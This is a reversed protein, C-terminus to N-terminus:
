LPTDPGILAPTQERNQRRAEDQVLPDLYDFLEKASKKGKGLGKLFYYTFMGHGQDDLTGTIQDGSAAALITIRGDPAAGQDVKTVLPRAGKAIVSRGGAGSFCADLAVIVHKAKTKSLDAYLKDLPYATSKLFQPDGDWPVLYAQGTKPDPAGHGSYYVFLTSDKGVNLPLWEELYSKIKNGTAAQAELSIINRSPIGLAELHKRVTRADRVGFEAKPLAQYDEIGIVLAFDKPRPKARESPEDVDSHLSPTEQKGPTPPGSAITAPGRAPSRGEAAALKQAAAIQEKTMLAQLRAIAERAGPGDHAAAILYWKYAEVYDQTVGEGNEHMAGLNVTCYALDGHEVGARLWKLAQAFDKAMGRGTRSLFGLGNFAYPVGGEAALRWLRAAEADDQKVGLGNFYLNALGNEGHHNAQDASKKYWKFAAAYDKPVGWGNQYLWALGQQCDGSGQEAAKTWWKATAAYDQKVGWGNYYLWGLGHQAWSYGKQASKQFWKLAEAYDKRVGWGNLYLWGLGNEAYTDGQEAAKLYWRAAQAYDQEVGWGNQYLWGLERQGVAYGSEAAQRQWREAQEYDKAVGLGNVYLVGLLCPGAPDGAAALASALTKAKAYDGSFYAKWADDAPAAWLATALLLLALASAPSRAM